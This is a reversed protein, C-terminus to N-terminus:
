PSVRTVQHSKTRALSRASNPNGLPSGRRARRRPAMRRGCRDVPGVSHLQQECPLSDVGFAGQRDPQDPPHHGVLRQEILGTRQGVRRTEASRGQGAHWSPSPSASAAVHGHEFRDAEALGHPDDGTARVVGGFPRSCRHLSARRPPGPSSVGPAAAPPVAQTSRPTRRTATRGRPDPRPQGPGATM